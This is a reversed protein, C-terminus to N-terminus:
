AIEETTNDVAWETAISDGRKLIASRGAAAKIGTRGYGAELGAAYVDAAKVWGRASLWNQLWQEATVSTNEGGAGLRWIAAHARRDIVAIQDSKRAAQRLSDLSHGAAQGADYVAKSETTDIGAALLEAVHADLWQPASQSQDPVAHLPSPADVTSRPDVTESSPNQLTSGPGSQVRETAVHTSLFRDGQGIQDGKNVQPKAGQGSHDGQGISFRYRAGREVAVQTVTGESILESVAQDFLDRKERKGLRSRLANGAQEGDKELMRCVSAKVRELLRQDYVEDGHARAIARDRVKKRAAKESESVVWDRVSDSRDMVAASLQWDLDSVVSRHHMIALAAAVKLRTLMAHGDLADAEGRQRALHATIITERIETPGYGIEVIGGDHRWDPLVSNLPDPDPVEDAPMHPDITLFWLFRQPTGGTSDDFIVGTHGPQAGVSLCARYSHAQVIRTTAASANSQGITEGMALSKLQALLISGQRSALGALTDIEPVSIIARTIGGEPEDADNKPKPRAFIASLGEGSGLPREEIEAPWALRAVKDSIGKGGGSPAVFAVLLNLSARGGIVGPLQVTPETTAAVRLLVAGFVAWPAAYRARAWQRITKLEDTANFFEDDNM